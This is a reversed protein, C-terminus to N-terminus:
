VVSKRDRQQWFSGDPRGFKHLADEIKKRTAYTGSGPAVMGSPLPLPHLGAAKAGQFFFDGVPTRPYAPCPFPFKPFWNGASKFYTAVSLAKFWESNKIGDNVADRDGSVALLTEAVNYFPEMEAYSVPWDPISYGWDKELMALQKTETFHTRLRFDIPLARFSWTGWIISGGGLISATWAGSFPASDADPTKRFTNYDGRLRRKPDLRELRFRYEDHPLPNYGPGCDTGGDRKPPDSLTDELPAAFDSGQELVVVSFGAKALLWSITGGGGSSGVVVFDVMEM